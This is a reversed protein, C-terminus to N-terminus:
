VRMRERDHRPDEQRTFRRYFLDKLDEESRIVAPDVAAAESLAEVLARIVTTTALEAGTAARVQATLRELYAVQRGDLAVTVSADGPMELRNEGGM